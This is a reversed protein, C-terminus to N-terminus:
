HKTKSIDVLELKNLLWENIPGVYRGNWDFHGRSNAEEDPYKWEVTYSNNKADVAKITGSCSIYPACAITKNFLGVALLAVQEDQKVCPRIPRSPRGWLAYNIGKCDKECLYIDILILCDWCDEFKTSSTTCFLNDVSYTVDHPSPLNPNIARDPDHLVFGYTFLNYSSSLISYYSGPSGIYGYYLRPPDYLNVSILSLYLIIENKRYFVNDYKIRCYGSCVEGNPIQFQLFLEIKILSEVCEIPAYVARDMTTGSNKNCLYCGFDLFITEKSCDAHGVDIRLVAEDKARINAQWYPDDSFKVEYSQSHNPLEVKSINVDKHHSVHVVRPNEINKNLCLHVVLDEKMGGGCDITTVNEVILNYGLWFRRWKGRLWSWITQDTPISLFFDFTKNPRNQIIQAYKLYQKHEVLSALSVQINLRDKIPFHTHGKYDDQVIFEVNSKRTDCTATVIIYQSNWPIFPECNQGDVQTFM